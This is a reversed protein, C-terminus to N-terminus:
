TRGRALLHAEVVLRIRRVGVVRVMQRLKLVMLLLVM